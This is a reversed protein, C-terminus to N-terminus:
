QHKVTSLHDGFYGVLVVWEGKVREARFYVRAGNGGTLKTHLSWREFAFGDPMGFDRMPGYTGHNLTAESEVSFSVALPKYAGHTWTRAGEDLARLHRVLQPFVIESGHLTEISSRADPGLRLRPFLEGIRKIIMAGNSVSRDVRDVLLERCAFVEHESTFTLVEEHEDRQGDDDLFTLEVELKAGAAQDDGILAVVISNTLAALGLGVVRKGDVKAEAASRGEAEAFLGNNGDIYPQKDLRSAVLRGADRSTVKDFCWSRLGRGGQLDRDAADSVSRLVRLVGLGDLAKLTKALAEIRKAPAYKSCPLLSTEDLIPEV